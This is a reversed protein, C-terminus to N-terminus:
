AAEAPVLRQAPRSLFAPWKLRWGLAPETHAALRDIVTDFILHIEVQTTEKRDNFEIFSTFKGNPHRERAVALLHEALPMEPLKQALWRGGRKGGEPVVFHPDGPLLGYAIAVAVVPCVCGEPNRCAGRVWGYQKLLGKAHAAKALLDKCQDTSLENLNPM